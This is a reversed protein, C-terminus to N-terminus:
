QNDLAESSININSIKLRQHEHILTITLKAQGSSFLVEGTYSVIKKGFFSLASALKSFHLQEIKQFDGLPRYLALVNSLQSPSTIDKAEQSLHRSLDQEQWSSIDELMQNIQAPATAEYYAQQQDTYMYLLAMAILLAIATIRQQSATM